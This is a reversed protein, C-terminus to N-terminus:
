RVILLGYMGGLGAIGVGPPGGGLGGGGRWGMVPGYGGM